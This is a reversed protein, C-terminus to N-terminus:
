KKQKLHGVLLNIITKQFDKNIQMYDIKFPITIDALKSVKDNVFVDLTISKIEM